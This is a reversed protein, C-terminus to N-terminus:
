PLKRIRQWWTEVLSKPANRIQQAALQSACSLKEGLQAISNLDTFDARWQTAGPLSVRASFDGGDAAYRRPTEWVEIRIKVSLAGVM